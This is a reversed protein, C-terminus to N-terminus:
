YIFLLFSFKVLQPPLFVAAQFKYIRVQDIDHIHGVGQFRLASLLLLLIIERNKM